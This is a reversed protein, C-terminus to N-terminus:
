FQRSTRTPSYNKKLYYQFIDLMEQISIDGMMNDLSAITENTKNWAEYISEEFANKPNLLSSQINRLYIDFVKIWGSPNRKIRWEHHSAHIQNL